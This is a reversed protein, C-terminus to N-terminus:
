CAMDVASSSFASLHQVATQDEAVAQASTLAPCPWSAFSASTWCASCAQRLCGFFKDADAAAPQLLTDGHEISLPTPVRIVAAIYLLAPRRMALRPVAASCRLLHTHVSGLMCELTCSPKANYTVQDQVDSMQHWVRQYVSSQMHVHQHQWLLYTQLRMCAHVRRGDSVSSCSANLCMGTARPMICAPVSLPQLPRHTM